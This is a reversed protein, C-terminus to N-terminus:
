NRNEPAEPCSLFESARGTVISYSEFLRNFNLCATEATQLFTLGSEEVRCVNGSLTSTNSSVSYVSPQIPFRMKPNLTEFNATEFEKFCSFIKLTDNHREKQKFEQGFAGPLALVLDLQPKENVISM